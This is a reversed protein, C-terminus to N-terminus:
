DRTLSKRSGYRHQQELCTRNQETITVLRHVEFVTIGFYRINSFKQTVNVENLAGDFVLQM